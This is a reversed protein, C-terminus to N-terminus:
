SFGKPLPLKTRLFGTRRNIQIGPSGPKDIWESESPKPRVVREGPRIPREPPEHPGTPM